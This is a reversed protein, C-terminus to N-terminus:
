DDVTIAAIEDVSTIGEKIRNIGSYRLTLMGDKVGQELIAKENIETGSEVIIERLESTFYLGEMIATRGKYGNRCKNCGVPQFLNKETELEEDTFGLEKAFVKQDSDM